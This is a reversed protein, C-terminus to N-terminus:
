RMWWPTFWIKLFLMAMYGQFSAIPDAESKQVAVEVRSSVPLEVEPHTDAGEQDEQTSILRPRREGPATRTSVRKGGEIVGFIGSGNAMVHHVKSM